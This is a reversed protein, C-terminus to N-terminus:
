FLLLLLYNDSLDMINSLLGGRVFLIMRTVIAFLEELFFFHGKDVFFDDLGDHNFRSVVFKAAVCDNITIM